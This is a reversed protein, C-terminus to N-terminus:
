CNYNNTTCTKEEAKRGYDNIPNTEALYAHNIRQLLESKEEEDVDPFETKLLHLLLLRLNNSEDTGAVFDSRFIMEEDDYIEIIVYNPKKGISLTKTFVKLQNDAEILTYRKKSPLFKGLGKKSTGFIVYM